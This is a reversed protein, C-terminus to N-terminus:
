AGQQKWEDDLWRRGLVTFRLTRGARLLGFTTLDFILSETTKPNVGRATLEDVVEHRSVTGGHETGADVRGIIHDLIPRTIPGTKHPDFDM